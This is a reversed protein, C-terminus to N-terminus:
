AQRAATALLEGVFVNYPKRVAVAKKKLLDITQVPLRFACTKFAAPPQKVLCLKSKPVKIGMSRLEKETFSVSLGAKLSSRVISALSKMAGTM